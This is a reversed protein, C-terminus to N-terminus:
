TLQGFSGLDATTINGTAKLTIGSGALLNGTAINAASISIGGQTFLTDGSNMAFSGGASFTISGQLL